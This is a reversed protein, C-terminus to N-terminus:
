DIELAIIMILPEQGSCNASNILRAEERQHNPLGRMRERCTGQCPDSARVSPLEGLM